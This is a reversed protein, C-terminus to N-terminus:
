AFRPCRQRYGTTDPFDASGRLHRHRDTRIRSLGAARGCCYSVCACQRTSQLARFQVSASKLPSSSPDESQIQWFPVRFRIHSGRTQAPLILPHNASRVGAPLALGFGFSQIQKDDPPSSASSSHNQSTKNPIIFYNAVRGGNGIFRFLGACPPRAAM